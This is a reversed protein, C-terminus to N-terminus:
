RKRRKANRATSASKNEKGSLSRKSHIIRRVKEVTAFFAIVGDYVRKLHDLDMDFENPDIPPNGKVLPNLRGKAIALLEKPTGEWDVSLEGLYTNEYTPHGNVDLTPHGNVDLSTFTGFCSCHSYHALAAQGNAILAVWGSEQYDENDSQAIISLRFQDSTLNM